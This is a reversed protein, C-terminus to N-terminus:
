HNRHLEARVYGIAQVSVLRIDQNTNNRIKMFLGLMPANPPATELGHTRTYCHSIIKQYEM